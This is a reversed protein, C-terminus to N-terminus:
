KIAIASATLKIKGKRKKEGIISSIFPTMITVDYTSCVKIIKNQEDDIIIPLNREKETNYNKKDMFDSKLKWFSVYIDNIDYDKSQFIQAAKQAANVCQTNLTAQCHLINAFDVIGIIIFIFLPFTLLFEVLAQGIKTKLSKTM